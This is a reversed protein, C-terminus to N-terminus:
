RRQSRVIEWILKEGLVNMKENMSVVIDARHKSYILKNITYTQELQM